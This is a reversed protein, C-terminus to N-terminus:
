NLAAKIKNALEIDTATVRGKGLAFNAGTKTIASSLRIYAVAVITQMEDVSLKNSDLRFAIIFDDVYVRFVVINDRIRPPLNAWFDDVPKLNALLLLGMAIPCGALVGRNTRTARSYAMGCRIRRPSRYMAIALKAIDSPFGYISAKALLDAHNVKEFGKELDDMIVVSIQGLNGAAIESYLAIDYAADESSKKPGNAIWDRKLGTTWASIKRGADRAWIRYPTVLLAILRWKFQEAKPIMVMVADKWQVPWDGSAESRKFFRILM